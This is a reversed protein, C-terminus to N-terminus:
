NYYLWPSWDNTAQVYDWVIKEVIKLLDCSINKFSVLVIKSWLLKGFTEIFVYGEASRWFKNWRGREESCALLFFMQVGSKQSNQIGVTVRKKVFLSFVQFGRWPESVGTQLESVVQRAVCLCVFVVKQADIKLSRTAIMMIKSFIRRFHMKFWKNKIFNFCM